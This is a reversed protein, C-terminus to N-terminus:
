IAQFECLVHSHFVDSNSVLLLIRHQGAKQAMEDAAIRKLVAATYFIKADYQEESWTSGSYMAAGPSQLNYLNFSAFSIDRAAM